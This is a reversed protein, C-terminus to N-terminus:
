PADGTPQWRIRDALLFHEPLFRAPSQRLPFGPPVKGQVLCAVLFQGWPRERLVWESTFRQDLTLYTLYLGKVIKVETHLARFEDEPDLTLPAAQRRGYWAMAWPQDTMLLDEEGFFSAVRTVFPPYYPPYAVPFTRPPLFTVVLPAVSVLVFLAAVPWRLLPHPLTMNDLLTFFLAVGFITVLPVLPALLNESNIVPTLTWLHTRFLCQAPILLLLALLTFVRLRRLGPHVFQVFLGVFFFAVLWTGGLTPLQQGLVDKLGTFLKRAVQV